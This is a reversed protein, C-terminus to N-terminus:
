ASWRFVGKRWAYMIALSLIGLFLAIEILGRWGLSDDSWVLAVPFLYLVDVEFAVFVLAFLYYAINFRMWSSGYTDVGCEYTQRTEAGRYRP